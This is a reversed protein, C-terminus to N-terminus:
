LAIIHHGANPAAYLDNNGIEWTRVYVMEFVDAGARM